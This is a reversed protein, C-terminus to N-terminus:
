AIKGAMLLLVLPASLSLTTVVNLKAVKQRRRLLELQRPDLGTGNICGNCKCTGNFFGSVTHPEDHLTHAYPDFSDTERLRDDNLDGAVGKYKYPHNCTMYKKRYREYHLERQETTLAAWELESLGYRNWVVMDSM